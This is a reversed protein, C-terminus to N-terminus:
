TTARKHAKKAWSPANDIFEKAASVASVKDNAPMQPRSDGFGEVIVWHYQFKYSYYLEIAFEGHKIREM